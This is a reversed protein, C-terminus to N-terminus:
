SFTGQLYAMAQELRNEGSIISYPLGASELTQLHRTFISQREILSPAERLPHFAWPLDPSCLLYHDSLNAQFLSEVKASVYGYKIESWLKITLLGTDFFVLKNKAVETARINLQLQGDAIRDLDEFVYTSGYQTLYAVAFEESYSTDFRGALAKALISKGSSEPGVIEVSRVM